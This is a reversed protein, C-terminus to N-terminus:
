EKYEKKQEDPHKHTSSIQFAIGIAALVAGAALPMWNSQQVMSVPVLLLLSKAASLGGGIGSVAIMVPRCFKVALLGLLVGALVGVAWGAWVTQILLRCCLLAIGATFIFVGALYLNYSIVALVAGLVVGALVGLVTNLGFHAGVANGVAFGVIFCVVAIAACQMRYGFFCSALSLVIMLAMWVGSLGNLSEM